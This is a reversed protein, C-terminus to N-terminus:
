KVVGHSLPRLRSGPIFALKNAHILSYDEDQLRKKQHSTSTTDLSLHTCLRPFRRLLGVLCQRVETVM